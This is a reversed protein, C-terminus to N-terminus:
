PLTLVASADMALADGEGSRGGFGHATARANLPKYGGDYDWTNLHIKWGTLTKPNGLSAAPILLSLTNSARDVALEAGPSLPRGESLASAGEHSFWANSWGHLRLRYHWRMAEPLEGGQQPMLRAGGGLKPNQFFVTLALHDFGQPPNWIAATEALRVDLKLAGGSSSVRLGRIDLTHRGQWSADSPYRYDGRPGRDDGAPDSLEALPTWPWRVQFRRTESLGGAESWAVLRHERRPDVMARTDVTARWRGQADARLDQASALDGDVVLKLAAGAPARGAATFDGVQEGADLPELLLAPAASQHAAKAAGVRWVWGSRPPLALSLRGQADVRQAEPQADIGFLPELRAGAPLGGAETALLAEAAGTNFAVLLSQGAHDMRWALAGPAAPNDALVSPRGHSFVRNERRLATARQVYRYLPAKTDFRDRGGAFMAARPERFGQETGYYLTPIGPLTMIALLAQKLGAEDGGALFRDVDHNDIFSPMLWPNEHLRMMSAIRAALVASPQGRAFVDGLSGYLPFNLMGPLLKQGKGDRMYADIKRAGTEGFAPDIAFGEGFVHFGKRGTSEAVRLIGPAKVDDSYLFDRFFDPPVYFATDVRFADVGVERIWYGHSDRLARRVAPNETNLDDLDGLQWGQEQEIKSHDAIAPTWHYIGAKAETPVRPDNLSFPWQRPKHDPRSDTNEMYGHAPNKPANQSAYAFFNGMHNVVIDQVLYLGRGHLDRALGQYDKLTGAHADVAKFDTAWYGHYGGYGHSGDWWQNAVPPTLWLATAGLGQIYDLRRRVGSIDGGHYKAPNEPDYEGAGQDNNEPEGDEFRDTM